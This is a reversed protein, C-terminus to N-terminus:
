VQMYKEGRSETDLAQINNGRLSFRGIAICRGGGVRGGEKQM